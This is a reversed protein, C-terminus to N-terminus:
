EGRLDLVTLQTLRGLVPTLAKMGETGISNGPTVHHLLYVCSLLVVPMRVQEVIVEPGACLSM